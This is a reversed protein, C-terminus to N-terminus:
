REKRQEHVSGLRGDASESADPYFVATVRSKSGSEVVSREERLYVVIRDGAVQNPGDHLVAGDSLVITQTAQDFVARRGEARRDGKKIHVNGEAVVEKIKDTDAGAPLAVGTRPAPGGRRAAARDYTISLRDSTLTVEGQTVQVHGHYTLTSGRYDLELSDSDIRIPQDRSGLSLSRFLDSQDTPRAARTEEAGAAAGGLVLTAALLAIVLRDSRV